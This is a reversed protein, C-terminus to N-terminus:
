PLYSPSLRRPSLSFPAGDFIAVRRRHADKRCAPSRRTQEPKWEPPMTTAGLLRFTENWVLSDRQVKDGKERVRERQERDRVRIGRLYSAPRCFGFRRNGCM